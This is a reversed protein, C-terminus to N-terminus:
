LKKVKLLRATLTVEFARLIAMAGLDKNWWFEYSYVGQQSLLRPFVCLWTRCKM